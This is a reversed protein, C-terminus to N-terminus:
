EVKNLGGYTEEVAERERELYAEFTGLEVGWRKLAEWDVLGDLGEFSVQNELAMRVRGEKGEREEGSVYVGRVERGSVRRLVEMVRGVEVGESAVAIEKGHFRGPEEFAAVAFRAIDREDVLPLVEERAKGFGHLFEGTERVGPFQFGTKEGLFNAMFYGPRLVTWHQIGAERVAGEIEMKALRIGASWHSPNWQPLNYTPLAGSYVVHSVGSTKAIRLISTAQTVEQSPDTFNPFTNLFLHTCSQLATTLATTDDWGSPSPFVRAGLTTLSLASPSSPSRTTFHVTYDLDLLQRALASGVTGTASTVFVTPKSM